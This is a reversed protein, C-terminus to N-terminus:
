LVTLKNLIECDDVLVSEVFCAILDFGVVRRMMLSGLSLRGILM